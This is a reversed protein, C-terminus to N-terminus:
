YKGISYKKRFFTEYVNDEHMSRVVYCNMDKGYDFYLQKLGNYTSSIFSRKNGRKNFLLGLCQEDDFFDIHVKNSKYEKILMYKHNYQDYCFSSKVNDTKYSDILLIDGILEYKGITYVIPNVGNVIQDLSLKAM